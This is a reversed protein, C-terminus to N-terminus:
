DSYNFMASKLDLEQKKGDAETQYRLSIIWLQTDFQIKQNRVVFRWVALFWNRVAFRRVAQALEPESGRVEVARFRVGGSM